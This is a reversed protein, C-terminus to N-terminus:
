FEELDEAPVDAEQELYDEPSMVRRRKSEVPAILDTAITPGVSAEASRMVPSESLDCTSAPIEAVGEPSEDRETNGLNM